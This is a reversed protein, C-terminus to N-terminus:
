HYTHKEDPYTGNLVENKFSAVAKRIERGLSAYRKLYKPSFAEDFGLIDNIM